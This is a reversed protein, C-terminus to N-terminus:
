PRDPFHAAALKFLVSAGFAFGVATGKLLAYLKPQM